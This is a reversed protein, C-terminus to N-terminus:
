QGRQYKPAYSQTSVGGYNRRNRDDNKNHYSKSKNNYNKRKNNNNNNNSSNNSNKNNDDNGYSPDNDLLYTIRETYHLAQRHTDSPPASGPHVVLTGDPQNWAAPLEGLYIYKSILAHVTNKPLDFLDALSQLKISKFSQLYTFTYALAGAKKLQEEYFNSVKDEAQPILKWAKLSKVYKLCTAWDGELLYRSAVIVTERTNEPEGTFVQRAYIDLARRFSKSIVRWKEGRFARQERLAENPLELILGTLLHCTEILELNIHMHYPFLRSRELKEQEPSKDGTNQRYLIGQALLEKSRGSSTIDTLYRHCDYVRGLRFAALGLAVIVRNFLLQIQPRAHHIKDQLHSMLLMDRAEFFRDHNALHYIHYLMAKRRHRKESTERYIDRALSEVLSTLDTIKLPNPPHVLLINDTVSPGDPANPLATDTAPASDEATPADDDDGDGQKQALDDIEWNNNDSAKRYYTHELIHFKMETKRGVSNKMEYYTQAFQCLNLLAQEHSLRQVFAQTHAQLSQLSKVLEDKLRLISAALFGHTITEPLLLSEDEERLKNLLTLDEYLKIEPHATLITIVEVLANYTSKWVPIPLYNSNGMGPADLMLTIKYFKIVLENNLGEAKTLLFDLEKISKKRNYNKAGRKNLLLKLKVDVKKQDWEEEKEEKDAEGKKPVKKKRVKKSQDRVRKEKEKKPKDPTFWYSIDRKEGRVWVDEEESDSESESMEESWFDEEDEEEEDEEGEEEEVSDAPDYADVLGQVGFQDAALYKRINQKMKNFSKYNQPKMSKKVAKDGSTTDIFDKLRIVFAIFFRPLGEAKIVTKKKTLLKLLEGWETSIAVWDNIAIKKDILSVSKQIDEFASEKKSKVVRKKGDESSSEDLAYVVRSKAASVQLDDEEDTSYLDSDSGSDDAGWWDSM